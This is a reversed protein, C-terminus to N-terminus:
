PNRVPRSTSGPPHDGGHSVVKRGARDGKEEGVDFTRRFQQVRETRLAVGCSEGLMPTDDALGAGSLTPDLDVGLSVGEEEGERGRRGCERGGAGQCSRESRTGDADAHAQVRSRGEEGLFAVDTEVDMAGRADGGGPVASLHRTEAAVAARTSCSRRSRPSCRKLSERGGLAHELESVRLKGRQLTEVACVQRDRGVWQDTPLPLEDVDQGQHAVFRGPRDRDGARAPDALGPGCESRRGFRGVVKRVTHPEDIQGRNAIRTQDHRRHSLRGTGLAVKPVRQAVCAAQEYEVVELLYHSRCPVNGLQESGARPNTHERRAPLRKPDRELALILERRERLRGADLEEPLAHGRGNRVRVDFVANGSVDAPAEVTEWQRDLETRRAHLYELGLGQERAEVITKRDEDRAGAVDRLPLTRQV